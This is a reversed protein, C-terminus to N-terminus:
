RVTRRGNYYPVVKVVGGHRNAARKASSLQNYVGIIEDIYNNNNKTTEGVIVLYLVDGSM